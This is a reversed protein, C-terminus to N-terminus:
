ARPLGCGMWASLAGDAAQERGGDRERALHLCTSTTVHVALIYYVNKCVRSHQYQVESRAAPSLSRDCIPAGISQSLLGKHPQWRCHWPMLNLHSQVGASSDGTSGAFGLEAGFQVWECPGLKPPQSQHRTLGQELTLAPGEQLASLDSVEAGVWPPQAGALGAHCSGRSLDGPPEPPAAQSWASEAAAAHTELFARLQSSPLLPVPLARLASLSESGRPGM